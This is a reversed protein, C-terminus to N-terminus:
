AVKALFGLLARNFDDPAEVCSCHAAKPIVTLASGGIREHMTRAMTIDTGRDEEGVLVLTPVRIAHIADRLDGYGIARIAGVYGTVSTPRLM